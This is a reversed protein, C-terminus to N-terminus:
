TWRNRCPSSASRVVVLTELNALNGLEQPIEGELDTGGLALYELSVLNGLEPPIEGSIGPVTLSTLNRLNGLEPPLEWLGPNNGLNLEKLNALNGMEPPIDGSLRNGELNLKTLYTLDGIEPPLQGRLDQHPLDIVTVRGKVNTRVGSPIPYDDRWEWKRRWKDGQTADYLAQLAERDPHVLNNGEWIYFEEVNPLDFM